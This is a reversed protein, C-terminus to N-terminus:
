SEAREKAEATSLKSNMSRMASAVDPFDGSYSAASALSVAECGSDEAESLELIVELAAAHVATVGKTM